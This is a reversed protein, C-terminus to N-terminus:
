DDCKQRFQKHSNKTHKKIDDLINKIEAKDTSKDLKNFLNNLEKMGQMYKMHQQHQETSVGKMNMDGHGMNLQEMEKMDDSSITSNDMKSVAEADLKEGSIEPMSKENGKAPMSEADLKESSITAMEEHAMNKIKVPTEKAAKENLMLLENLHQQMKENNDSKFAKVYARLESKMHEMHESLPTDEIECKDKKAFANSMPMALFLAGVLALSISSRQINM